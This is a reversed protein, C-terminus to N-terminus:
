ANRAADSREIEKQRAEAKEAGELNEYALRAHMRELAADLESLEEINTGIGKFSGRGILGAYGREPILEIGWDPGDIIISYGNGTASVDAKHKAAWKRVVDIIEGTVEKKINGM